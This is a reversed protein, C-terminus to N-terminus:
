LKFKAPAPRERGTGKGRVFMEIDVSASAANSGTAAMDLSALTAEHQQKRLDVYKIFRQKLFEVRKVEAEQFETCASISEDVWETLVVNFENIAKKYEEAAKELKAKLKKPDEKRGAPSESHKVLDAYVRQTEDLQVKTDNMKKRAQAVTKEFAKRSGKQEDKFGMLQDIMEKQLAQAFREHARAESMIDMKINNWATKLSGEEIDGLPMKALRQLQKAYNDEVQVRERMFEAMEKIVEKGNRHKLVLVDFGTTQADRDRWFYDVLSVKEKDLLECVMEGNEYVPIGHLQDRKGPRQQTPTGPASGSAAAGASTTSQSGGLATSSGIEREGDDDDNLASDVSANAALPADEPPPPTWSTVKTQNNYYYVKGEETKLRRWQPPLNASGKEAEQVYTAPFWGTKNETTDKGFYWGDERRQTVHYVNNKVLQLQKENTPAFDYLARYYGNCAM